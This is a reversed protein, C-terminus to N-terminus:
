VELFTVKPHLRSGEREHWTKVRQIVIARELLLVWKIIIANGDQDRSKNMNVAIWKSDIPYGLDFVRSLAMLDLKEGGPHRQVVGIEPPPCYPFSSFVSPDTMSQIMSPDIM